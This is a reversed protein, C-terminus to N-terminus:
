GSIKASDLSNSHCFRLASPHLLPKSAAVHSVSDSFFFSGYSRALPSPSPPVPDLQAAKTDVRGCIGSISPPSDVSFGNDRPRSLVDPLLNRLGPRHIATFSFGVQAAALALRRLLFLLEKSNTKRRNLISVGADNDLVFVVHAGKLAAGAELAFTVPALLEAEAIHRSSRLRAHSDSWQCGTAAGRRLDVPLLSNVSDPAHEVVFGMGQTSADSAVVLPDQQLTWKRTGNWSDLFKLWLNIDDRFGTPLRRRFGPVADLLFRLFPRAAPLVSAIFSLKGILSLISKRSSSSRGAFSRLLDKAERLKDDPVSVTQAVSDLWLGLFELRQSPGETKVPNVMLGFERLVQATRAMCALAAQESSCIGLFDDLFRTMRIGEDHLKASVVDLLASVLRPASALGFPMSTFKWYDRGFKFAMMDSAEKTLPFSLFCSSLDLKYYWCGPESWEVAAELSLYKFSRKKIYENYGRSLDLCLRPKKGPKVIALLPHCIKPPASLRELCRIVKYEDFRQKCAPFNKDISSSNPWSGPRPSRFLGPDVGRSINAATSSTFELDAGREAMRSIQDLWKAKNGPIDPRLLASRKISRLVERRSLPAGPRHLSPTTQAAGHHFPSAPHSRFGSLFATPSLFSPASAFLDRGGPNSGVTTGGATGDAGTSSSHPSRSLSHTGAGPCSLPRTSSVSGTVTPITASAVSTPPQPGHSSPAMTPAATSFNSLPSFTNSLPFVAPGHASFFGSDLSM